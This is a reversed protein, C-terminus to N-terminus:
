RRPSFGSPLNSKPPEPPKPPPPSAPPPEDMPADVQFPGQEGFTEEEVKAESTDDALEEMGLRTRAKKAAGTRPYEEVIRRLLAAAKPPQGLKSHLNCLHIAAWGWREPPLKHKLVEEYELAAALYNKLDKEYIEAIRLAAYIERPHKKLFGRLLEVAELFHGNAWEAEARDYAPDRTADDAVDRFLYNTAQSGLLHTTDMAVLVGIGILSGILGALYRIMTGRNEEATRLVVHHKAKKKKAHSNTAAAISNSPAVTIAATNSAGEASNTTDDVISTLVNTAVVNTAPSANTDSPGNTDLAPPPPATETAATAPVEVVAVSAAEAVASYSSYFGWGFWVALCLLVAYAALKVKLNM